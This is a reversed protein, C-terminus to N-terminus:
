MTLQLSDYSAQGTATVDFGAPTAGNVNITIPYSYASSRLYYYITVENNYSYEWRTGQADGKTVSTKSVLHFVNNTYMQTEGYSPGPDHVSGIQLVGLELPSYEGGDCGPSGACSASPPYPCRVTATARHGAAYDDTGAVVDDVSSTCGHATAYSFRFGFTADSIIKSAPASQVSVSPSSSATVQAAGTPTATAGSSNTPSSTTGCAGLAVLVGFGLLAPSKM